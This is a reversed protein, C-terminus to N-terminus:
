PAPTPEISSDHLDIPPDKDMGLRAVLERAYIELGKNSYVIRHGSFEEVGRVEKEIDGPLIHDRMLGYLLSVLNEELSM